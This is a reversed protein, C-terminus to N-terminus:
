SQFKGNKSSSLDGAIRLNKSWSWPCNLNKKIPTCQVDLKHIGRTVFIRGVDRMKSIIMRVQCASALSATCCADLANGVLLAALQHHSHPVPGLPLRNGERAQQRPQVYLIHWSFTYISTSTGKKWFIWALCEVDCVQQGHVRIHESGHLLALLASLGAVHRHHYGACTSINNHNIVKIAYSYDKYLHHPVSWPM